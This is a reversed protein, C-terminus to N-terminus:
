IGIKKNEFEEPIFKIWEEIDSLMKYIKNKRDEFHVRAIKAGDINEPSKDDWDEMSSNLYKKIKKLEEELLDELIEVEDFHLKELNIQENGIYNLEM